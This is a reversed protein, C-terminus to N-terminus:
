LDKLEEKLKNIECNLINTVNYKLEQPLNIDIEREEEGSPLLKSPQVVHVECAAASLIRRAEELKPLTSAIQGIRQLNKINAM